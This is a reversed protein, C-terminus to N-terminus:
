KGIRGIPISALQRYHSGSKTPISEVLSCRTFIAPTLSFSAHRMVWAEVPGSSRPLRAITIHPIYARREPELGANQCAHDLKRHLATLPQVPLVRVWLADPRQRTEFYGIGDLALPPLTAPMLGLAMVLDDLVAGNNVEGIFRLTLHLQSASQWRAGAVGDM